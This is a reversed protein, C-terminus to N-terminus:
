LFLNDIVMRLEKLGCEWYDLLFAQVICLGNKMNGTICVMKESINGIIYPIIKIYFPLLYSYSFSWFTIMGMIVYVNISLIEIWSSFNKSFPIYLIAIILKLLVLRTSLSLLFSALDELNVPIDMFYMFTNILLYCIVIMMLLCFFLSPNNKLMDLGNLFLSKIYLLANNDKKKVISDFFSLSIVTFSLFKQFNSIDLTSYSALSYSVILGMLAFYVLYRSGLCLEVWNQDFCIKIIIYIIAFSLMILVIIFMALLFNM